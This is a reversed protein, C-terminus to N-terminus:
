EARLLYDALAAFTLYRFHGKDVLDVIFSKIDRTKVHPFSRLYQMYKSYESYNKHFAITVYDADLGIGRMSVVTPSPNKKEMERGHKKIEDYLEETPPEELKSFTISALKYGLKAFEPITAYERITGEREMKNRMRTVTPQSVHVRKAVERDSMRSNVILEAILKLEASKL